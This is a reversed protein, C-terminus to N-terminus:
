YNEKIFLRWQPMNLPCKVQQERSIFAALEEETHIPENSMDIILSSMM